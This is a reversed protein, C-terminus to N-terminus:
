YRRCGLAYMAEPHDFFEDESCCEDRLSKKAEESLGLAAFRGKSAARQCAPSLSSDAQVRALSFCLFALVLKHLTVNIM